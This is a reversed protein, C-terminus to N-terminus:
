WVFVPQGRSFTVAAAVLIAILWWFNQLVEGVVLVIRTILPLDGGLEEFIPTFQPIVYVLLLILSGAALVLLLIPYILASIVSDKLDRSRELYDTLRFPLGKPSDQRPYGAFPM